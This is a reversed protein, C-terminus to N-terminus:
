AVAAKQEPEPPLLAMFRETKRGLDFCAEAGDVAAQKLLIPLGTEVSHVVEARTAARGECFWDVGYPVPEGIDFLIGNGGREPRWTEYKKTEWLMSVGPNRTIGIGAMGAQPPLDREDRLRKPVALFPCAKVAWEACSAHNPPESSTRNIGCM